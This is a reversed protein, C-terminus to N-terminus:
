FYNKKPVIKVRMMGRSGSLNFVERFDKFLSIHLGGQGCAYKMPFLYGNLCYLFM